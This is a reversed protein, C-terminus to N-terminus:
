GCTACTNNVFPKNGSLLQAAEHAKSINGCNYAIEAGIKLLINDLIAMANDCHDAEVPILSIGNVILAEGNNITLGQVMAIWYIFFSSGTQNATVSGALTIINGSVSLIMVPYSIGDLSIAEVGSLYNALNPDACTIQTGDASVTYPSALAQSLGYYAYYNNVGDLIIATFQMTTAVSGAVASANYPTGGYSQVQGFLSTIAAPSGPAYPSGWGSTGGTPTADTLTFSTNNRPVATLTVVPAFSM